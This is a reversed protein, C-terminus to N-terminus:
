GEIVEFCCTYLVCRQHRYCTTSWRACAKGRTEATIVRHEKRSCGSKRKRRWTRRMKSLGGKENGLTRNSNNKKTSQHRNSTPYCVSSAIFLSMGFSTNLLSSANFTIPTAGSPVSSSILTANLRNTREIENINSQGHNRVKWLLSKLPMGITM